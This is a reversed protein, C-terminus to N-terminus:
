RSPRLLLYHLQDTHLPQRNWVNICLTFPNHPKGHHLPVSTALRKTSHRKVMSQLRLRHSPSDSIAIPCSARPRTIIDTLRKLLHFLKWPYVNLIAPHSLRQLCSPNKPFRSILHKKLNRSRKSYTICQNVYFRNELTDPLLWVPHLLQKAPHLRLKQ